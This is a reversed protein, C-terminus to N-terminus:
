IKREKNKENMIRSIKTLYISVLVNMYFVNYTHGDLHQKRIHWTCCCSLLGLNRYSFEVVLFFDWVKKATNLKLIFFFVFLLINWCEYSYLLPVEKWMWLLLYFYHVYNHIKFCYYSQFFQFFSFSYCSVCGVLMKEAFLFLFSKQM